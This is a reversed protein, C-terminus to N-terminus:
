FRANELNPSQRLKKLLKDDFRNFGLFLEELNAVHPCEALATVQPPTIGGVLELTRIKLLYPSGLLAFWDEDRISSPAWYHGPAAVCLQRIPMSRYWLSALEAFTQPQASIGEVCGREFIIGTAKDILPKVWEVCHTRLLDLHRQWLVQLRAADKRNRPQPMPHGYMSKRELPRALTAMEVQVRIFEARPDGREELWDAYILRPVDDGPEALIADIFDQHTM